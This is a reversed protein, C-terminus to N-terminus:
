VQKKGEDEYVMCYFKYRGCKLCILGIITNPDSMHAFTQIINLSKIKPYSTM